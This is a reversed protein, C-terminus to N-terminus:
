SKYLITPNKVYLPMGAMECHEKMINPPSVFPLHTVSHDFEVCCLCLYVIKVVGGM